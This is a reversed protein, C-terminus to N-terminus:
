YIKKLKLLLTFKINNDLDDIGELVDQQQLITLENTQINM